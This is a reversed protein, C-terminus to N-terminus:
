LNKNKSKNSINVRIVEQEFKCLLVSNMEKTYISNKEIFKFVDRKRVLVGSSNIRFTHEATVNEYDFINKGEKSLRITLILSIYLFNNSYNNIKSIKMVEM